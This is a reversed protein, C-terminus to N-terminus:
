CSNFVFQIASDFNTFNHLVSRISNKLWSWFKEIPNLDPSYAPLFLLTFNTNEILKFLKKKPHFSANDMVFVANEPAEKLLCNEFWFEFFVSDMTGEYQIPAIIKKGCKGAVISTRQYKKGSIEGMVKKGKPSWAYERYLYTDMGM